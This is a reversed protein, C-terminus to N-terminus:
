KLRFSDFVKENQQDYGAYAAQSATFTLVFAKEGKVWYRQKWKLHLIGQDGTFVIEQFENAESRIRKSEIIQAHTIMTKVQGESLAAYKDLDFGSGKLDQVILNLNDRFGANNQGTFLIFQTGMQGSQDLSWSSPYTLLYDTQDLLKGPDKEAQGNGESFFLLWCALVGLIQKVSM